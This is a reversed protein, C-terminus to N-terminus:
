KVYKGMSSLGGKTILERFAFNNEPNLQYEKVESEILNEAVKKVSEGGLVLEWIAIKEEDGGDFAYVHLMGQTKKALYIQWRGESEEFHISMVLYGAFRRVVAKEGLLVLDGGIDIHNASITITETESETVVATWVGQWATPFSTLSRRNMPMPEPFTVEVCGTFLILASLFLTLKTKM